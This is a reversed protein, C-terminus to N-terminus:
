LHCIPTLCLHVDERSEIAGRRPSVRVDAGMVFTQVRFIEDALPARLSPLITLWSSPSGFHAALRGSHILLPLAGSPVVLPIPLSSRVMRTAVFGRRSKQNSSAIELEILTGFALVHIWMPLSSSTKPEHRNPEGM